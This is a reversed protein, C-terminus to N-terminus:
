RVPLIFRGEKQVRRIMEALEHGLDTGGGVRRFVVGGSSDVVFITPTPSVAYDVWAQPSVLQQWGPTVAELSGSAEEESTVVSVLIM